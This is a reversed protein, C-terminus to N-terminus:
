ALVLADCKLGGLHVDPGSWLLPAEVNAMVNLGVRLACRESAIPDSALKALEFTDLSSQNGNSFCTGKREKSFSGSYANQM